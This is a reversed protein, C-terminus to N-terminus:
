RTAPQTAQASTAGEVTNTMLRVDVRRNEARGKANANSAAPKDKGLGILFIKHAPINYKSALYNIVADARRQSLAYNYDAPGVSDTNGDVVIIYHKANPIDAALQDLAKKAKPTLNYQDFGFHITSETVPKYNDLNAVTNALSNVRNSAQSALQQANDASQRAALAKQDAANAQTTAQQIGQQARADVDRIDRTNRATLDDLENVKNITPATENRVYKKTACGVLSTMSFAALLALLAFRNMSPEKTRCRGHATPTPRKVALSIGAPQRKALLGGVRNLKCAKQWDSNDGLRKLAQTKLRNSAAVAPL